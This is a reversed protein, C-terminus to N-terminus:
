QRRTGPLLDTEESLGMGQLIVEERRMVAQGDAEHTNYITTLEIGCHEKGDIVHEDKSRLSVPRKQSKRLKLCVFLYVAVALFFLLFCAATILQTLYSPKTNSQYHLLENISITASCEPPAQSDLCSRPTSTTRPQLTSEVSIITSAKSILGHSLSIPSTIIRTTSTEATTTPPEGDSIIIVTTHDQPSSPAVTISFGAYSDTSFLDRSEPTTTDSEVQPTRGAIRGMDRVLITVM